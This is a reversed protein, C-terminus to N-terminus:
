AGTSLVFYIETSFELITFPVELSSAILGMQNSYTEKMGKDRGSLSSLPYSVVIHRGRLKRLLELASGHRQQELCPLTKFLFVVDAAPHTLDSLIDRTEALTPLGQRSFFENVSSTLRQDIDFAWYKTEPSLDMWPVTFPNYGCALDLITSPHGTINWISSYLEELYPLREATSTHGRLLEFCGARFASTDSDNPLSEVRSLLSDLDNTHQFAAYVQHLKRKAAKTAEKASYRLIAWEAVRKLTQDCLNRYKRSMRLEDVLKELPLRDKM